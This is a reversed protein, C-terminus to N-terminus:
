RRQLIKLNVASINTEGFLSDIRDAEENFDSLVAEEFEGEAYFADEPEELLPLDALEEETM